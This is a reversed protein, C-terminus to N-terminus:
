PENSTDSGPVDDDTVLDPRKHRLAANATRAAALLDDCATGRLLPAGKISAYYVRWFRGEPRIEAVTDCLARRTFTVGSAGAVVVVMWPGVVDPQKLALQLTVAEARLPCWPPPAAGARLADREAEDLERHNPGFREPSLACTMYNAHSVARAPCDRCSTVLVPTM